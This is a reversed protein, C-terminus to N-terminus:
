SSLLRTIAAHDAKSMYHVGRLQLTQKSTRLNANHRRGACSRKIKGSKTQRFRKKAGSHTKMKPM